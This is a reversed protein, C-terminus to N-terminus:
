PQYKHQIPPTVGDNWFTTPASMRTIGLCKLIEFTSGPSQKALRLSEAHAADLTEHKYTPASAGIRMVYYYPKM